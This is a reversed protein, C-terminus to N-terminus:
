CCFVASNAPLLGTHILTKAGNLGSLNRNYLLSFNEPQLSLTIPLECQNENANEWFLKEAVCQYNLVFWELPCNWSRGM